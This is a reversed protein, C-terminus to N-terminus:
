DVYGLDRLRQITEDDVDHAGNEKEPEIEKDKKNQSGVIKDYNEIANKLKEFIEPEDNAINHKENPDKALNYLEVEKKEYSYIYKYDRWIVGEARNKIYNSSTYIYRDNNKKSWEEDIIFFSIGEFFDPVLIDNAELITPLIDITTVRADEEISSIGLHDPYKIVLPIEIVENYLTQHFVEEHEWLAEAHDASFIILSDDYLGYEKILGIIKGFFEDSLALGADYLDIVYKKQHDSSILNKEFSHFFIKKPGDVGDYDYKLYEDDYPAVAKYPAHPPYLTFIYFFVKM